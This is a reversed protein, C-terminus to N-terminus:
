FAKKLDEVLNVKEWTFHGESSPTRGFHGYAATPEYIPNSLKLHERIGRPSLDFMEPIIKEIKLEDIVVDSELPEKGKIANDETEFEEKLRFQAEGQTTKIINSM